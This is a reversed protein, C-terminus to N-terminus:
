PQLFVDMKGQLHNVYGDRLRENIITVQGGERAMALNVIIGPTKKWRENLAEQFAINVLATPDDPFQLEISFTFEYLRGEHTFSPKIQRIAPSSVAYAGGSLPLWKQEIEAKTMGFKVGYFSFEAAQSRADTAALALLASALALAALSRVVRSAGHETM